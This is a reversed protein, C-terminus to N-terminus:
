SWSYAQFVRLIAHLYCIVDITKFHHHSLYLWIYLWKLITFMFNHFQVLTVQLSNAATASQLSCRADNWTRCIEAVYRMHTGILAQLSKNFQWHYLMQIVQEKNHETFDNMTRRRQDEMHFSSVQIKSLNKVSTSKYITLPQTLLKNHMANVATAQHSPQSVMTRCHESATPQTM